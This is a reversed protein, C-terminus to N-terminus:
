DLPSDRDPPAPTNEPPMFDEIATADSTDTPADPSDSPPVFAPERQLLRFFGYGLALATGFVFLLTSTKLPHTTSFMSLFTLLLFSSILFVVGGFFANSAKIKRQSLLSQTGYLRQQFIILLFVGISISADAINFVPSFFILEEGNWQGKYIPFYFMDVVCGHLFSAYGTTSFQSVGGYGLYSKIDTNYATGTDFILGYFACDIVNGLAGAFILSICIILLPRVPQRILSILYWGIGFIAVIRFISLVLKATTGEGFELGFAMGHNEVFHLYFWDGVAPHSQGLHMHTKIWIKISQDICLVALIIALAKKV